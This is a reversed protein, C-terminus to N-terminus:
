HLGLVGLGAGDGYARVTGRTYYAHVARRQVAVFELLILYASRVDLAHIARDPQKALPQVPEGVSEALAPIVVPRSQGHEKAMAIVAAFVLAQLPHRWRHRVTQRCIYPRNALHQFRNDSLM